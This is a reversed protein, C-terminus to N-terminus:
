SSLHPATSESPWIHLLFRADKYVERESHEVNPRQLTIALSDSGGFSKRIPNGDGDRRRVSGGGDVEILCLLLSTRPTGLYQCTPTRHRDTCSTCLISWTRVSPCWSNVNLRKMGLGPAVSTEHPFSYPTTHRNCRGLRLKLGAIPGLRLEDTAPAVSHRARHWSLRQIRFM